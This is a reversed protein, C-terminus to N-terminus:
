LSARKFSTLNKVRWLVNCHCLLHLFSEEERDCIYMDPSGCPQYAPIQLPHQTQDAFAMKLILVKTRKHLSHSSIIAVSTVWSLLDSRENLTWVCLWLSSTGETPTLYFTSFSKLQFNCLLLSFFQNGRKKM